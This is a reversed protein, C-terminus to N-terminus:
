IISCISFDVLFVFALLCGFMNGFFGCTYEQTAKCVVTSSQASMQQCTVASFSENPLKQLFSPGHDQYTHLQKRGKLSEFM